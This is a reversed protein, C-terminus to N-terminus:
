PCDDAPCRNWPAGPGAREWAGVDADVILDRLGVDVDLYRRLSCRQIREPDNVFDDSEDGHFFRWGSDGVQRPAECYAYLVPLRQPGVVMSSALVWYGSPGAPDPVDVADAGHRVSRVLDIAHELDRKLDFYIALQLQDGGGLALAYVAWREGGGDQPERMVRAHRLVGEDESRLVVRHPAAGRLLSELQTALPRSDPERKTYSAGFVTRGYKWLALDGDHVDSRYSDDLGISWRGIRRM